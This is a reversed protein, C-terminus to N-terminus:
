TLATSLRPPYHPRDHHFGKARERWSEFEPMSSRLSSIDYYESLNEAETIAANWADEMAFISGSYESQWDPYNINLWENFTM